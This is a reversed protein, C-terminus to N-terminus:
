PIEKRKAEPSGQLTDNPVDDTARGCQVCRTKMGDETGDPLCSITRDFWTEDCGCRPCSWVASCGSERKCPEATAGGQLHLPANPSDVRREIAAWTPEYEPWDHEVVVCDMMSAGRRVRHETVKDCIAKQAKTDADTLAASVDTLKLVIYRQERKM